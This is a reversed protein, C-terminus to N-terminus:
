AGLEARLAEIRTTMREAGDELFRLNSEAVGLLRSAEEGDGRALAIRARGIVIGISLSLQRANEGAEVFLAEAEDLAGAELRIAGLTQLLQPVRGAIEIARAAMEAGEALRALDVGVCYALNNLIEADDPFSELALRWTAEADDYLGEAYYTSGLIALAQRRVPPSAASGAVSRLADRGENKREESEALAAARLMELWEAQATGPELTASARDIVAIQEGLPRERHTRGLNGIWNLYSAPNDDLKGFAALMERDAVDDRGRGAAILARSIDVRPESLAAEGGVELVRDLVREAEGSRPPEQNVLADILRLGLDLEPSEDFVLRSMSASEAWLSRDAFVQAAILAPIPDDGRERAVEAATRLAEGDRGLRVLEVLLSVLLDNAQPNSDVANRLAELALATEGRRQALIALLRHARWNNPELNLATQLDQEADSELGESNLIIEARQVFVSAQDRYKAVTANIQRLAEETDGSRMALQASLMSLTLDDPLREIAEAVVVGARDFQGSLSLSEALRKTYTLQADDPAAGLAGEYAEAAEAHRALRFLLDGRLRLARGRTGPDIQEAQTAASLAIRTRGRNLMFESLALYARAEEEDTATASFIYDVFTLRALEIGEFTEGSRQVTGQSAYLTAEMQVAPLEDREARLGAIVDRADDWRQSDIYLAALAYRNERNDPERVARSERSSIALRRGAAGGESAELALFLDNFQPSRSAFPRLRRAEELAEDNRGAAILSGVYRRIIEADNPRIEIASAYSAVAENLRGLASQESALLVYVGSDVSSAEIATQYLEIARLRDGRAAALRGQFVLATTGTPDVEEVRSIVAEAEDYSENELNRLFTLELVTLSDPAISRLQDLLSLAEDTNGAAAQVRYQRILRQEPDEINAAILRNLADLPDTAELVPRLTAISDDDPRAASAARILTKAEELRESSLLIQALEIVPRADYNNDEVLDRLIAEARGPDAPNVGDGVLAERAAVVGVLIPDGDDRRGLVQEIRTLQDRIQGALEDNESSALADSLLDAARVLNRRDGLQIETEALQVLLRRSLQGSDIARELATRAQGLRGLRRAVAAERALGLPDTRLANYQTYKDIAVRDDGSAEAILGDLLLLSAADESVLSAYRDRAAQSREIAMESGATDGQAGLTAARQIELRAIERPSENQIAARVRGALSLRVFGSSEVSSFMEIADAIEGGASLVLAIRYEYQVPDMVWPEARAEAVARQSELLELTRRLDFGGTMFREIASAQDLLFPDLQTEVAIAADFARGVAPRMEDRREALQRRRDDPSGERYLRSRLLREARARLGPLLLWPSDPDVERLRAMAADALAEEAVAAGYDGGNALTAAHAEHLMAISAFAEADRPDAEIAAELEAIAEARDEDSIVIGRQSLRALPLGRYRRLRQWDGASSGIEFAELLDTTSAVLGDAEARRGPALQEITQYQLELTEAILELDTGAVDAAARVVALYNTFAENAEDFSGPVLRETARLYKETWVPNQNDHGLAREYLRQAESYDGAEMAADGLAEYDSGTKIFLAAYVGIAGLCLAAVVSALIIVFKTNVRAAM